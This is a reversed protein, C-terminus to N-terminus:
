MNNLMRAKSAIEHGFEEISIVGTDLVKVLSQITMMEEIQRDELEKKKKYHDSEVKTPRGVRRKKPINEKDNVTKKKNYQM